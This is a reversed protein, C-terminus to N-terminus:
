KDCNRLEAASIVISVLPLTVLAPEAVPVITVVAVIEDVAVADEPTIKVGLPLM